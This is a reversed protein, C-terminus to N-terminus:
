TVIVILYRPKTVSEDAVYEICASEDYHEINRYKRGKKDRKYNADIPLPSKKTKYM